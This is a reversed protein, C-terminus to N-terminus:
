ITNVSELQELLESFASQPMVDAFHALRYLMFEHAAEPHPSPYRCGKLQLYREEPYPAWQYVAEVTVIDNYLPGYCVNYRKFFGPKLICVMEKNLGDILLQARM